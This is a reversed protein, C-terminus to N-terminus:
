CTFNSIVWTINQGSSTGCANCSQQSGIMNWTTQGVARKYLYATVNATYDSVKVRFTFNSGWAGSEKSVNLDYILPTWCWPYRINFDDLLMRSNSRDQGGQVRVSYNFYSRNYGKGATNCTNNQQGPSENGCELRPGIIEGIAVASNNLYGVYRVSGWAAPAAESDGGANTPM